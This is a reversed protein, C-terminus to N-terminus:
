REARRLWAAVAAGVILFGLLQTALNALTFDFPFRYWNWYPLSISLWGIVGVATSVLVRRAFGAPLLALLWALGFGIALDNAFQLGLQRGMDGPDRGSPQYIVMLYPNAKSKEVWPAHRAPDAYDEPSIWPLYYIGESPLARPAVALVADEDLPARMGVQGLPLATHALVGWIFCALAGLLGAIVIRM